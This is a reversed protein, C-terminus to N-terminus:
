RTCGQALSRRGAPLGSQAPRPPPTHRPRWRRRLSRRRWCRPPPSAARRHCRPTQPLSATTSAANTTSTELQSPCEKRDARGSCPCDL